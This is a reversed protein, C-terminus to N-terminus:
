VATFGIVLYVAAALGAAMLAYPIQTKVHDIHDSAAGTSALITTDSLPSCHDGFVGGGAVAAITALVLSTIEGGAFSFALPAAIPMVIAFTGWSTGTSFAITSAILFTLAPLLNPTLWSETVSIIYNATGMDKSLKNISFSLALIIIAPLVGKMGAMATKMIDNFPIGKVRMIIGLVVVATMFAEMTKASKMTIFTGVAISIVILVPLIFTALVSCSFGEYPPTDTLEEGLLPDAGDRLVKGEELARKEAAKMPGFDPIAGIAFLGVFAVAIIAYFNFPVSRTFVSIAQNADEIPGMGILLGSIYVAWGTIPVMVSVPASTSDAIYALKERSIKAKDSLGRMTSGVFLPSFYDSFFVFMGMVWAVLQIKVRSLKRNDMIRTFGQIAGTRQFFAILIGIFLELLLIWSFSTTGLAGKLLNPFGLLGQGAMLVGIFCAVALSFVTNRTKFALIIAIAAPLISIIGLHAGAEM